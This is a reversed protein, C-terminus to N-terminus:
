GGHVFLWVTADKSAGMNAGTLTYAGSLYQPNAAGSLVPAIEETNTTHRDAGTAVLADYSAGYPAILTLDWNATPATAAVGQTIVKVLFGHLDDISISADGSGDSTLNVKVIEGVQNLGGKHTGYLPLRSTIATAM